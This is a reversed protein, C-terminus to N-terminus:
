RAVGFLRGGAVEETGEIVLKSVETYILLTTTQRDSYNGPKKVPLGVNM